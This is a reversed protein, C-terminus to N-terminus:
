QSPLSDLDFTPSVAVMEDPRYASQSRVNDVRVSEFHVKGGYRFTRTVTWLGRRANPTGPKVDRAPIKIWEADEALDALKGYDTPTTM